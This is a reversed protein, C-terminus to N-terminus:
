NAPKHECHKTPKTESKSNATGNQSNAKHKAGKECDDTPVQNWTQLSSDAFLVYVIGCVILVISTILFVLHWQHVSQQKM